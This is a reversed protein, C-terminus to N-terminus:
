PPVGTTLYTHGFRSTWLHRGDPRRIYTWKAEHRGVHDHRCLPGNNEFSTEGGRSYLRRHDIDCDQAPMRCGPFACTPYHAEIQRRLRADPRRRTTGSHTVRGTEDRVVVEWRAKDQAAAVQRAIDAVVPGYGALDGPSDELEALTELDTHIIVSGGKGHEDNGLLLDVFVDARIQDITRPDDASKLSRAVGNIRRCVASVKHPALNLGMLNATGDPQPRGFVRREELGHRLKERADDPDSEICLRAIRSRLQGTTLRAAHPLVRDAIGRARTKDLHATGIAIARAKRVDVSGADLALGLAPIREVIDYALDLESDATRRTMTLAARVEMNTYEFWEDSREAPGDAGTPVATAVESLTRYYGAQQHSIQRTEARLLTVLQHGNLKSRDITSLIVALFPGPMWEDLDAPLAQLSTGAPLSALESATLAELGEDSLLPELEIDFMHEVRDPAGSVNWPTTTAENELLYPVDRRNRQLLADLVEEESQRAQGSM